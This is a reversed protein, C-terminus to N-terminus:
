VKKVSYALPSSYIFSSSFSATGLVDKEVIIEMYHEEGAAPAYPALVWTEVSSSLDYESEDVITAVVVDPTDVRYLKASFTCSPDNTLNWLGISGTIRSDAVATFHNSEFTQIFGGFDNKVILLLIESTVLATGDIDLADGSDFSDFSLHVENDSIDIIKRWGSNYDNGAGSETDSWAPLNSGRWRGFYGSGDLKIQTRALAATTPISGFASLIIEGATIEGLDAQIASLTNTIIRDAMVLDWATDPSPTHSPIELRPVPSVAQKGLGEMWMSLLEVTAMGSMQGGGPAARETGMFPTLPSLDEGTFGWPVMYGLASVARMGTNPDYGGTLVPPLIVMSDDFQMEGPFVQPM